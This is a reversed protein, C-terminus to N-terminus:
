GPAVATDSQRFAYGDVAANTHMPVPHRAVAAQALIRGAAAALAVTTVATAPVIRESLIAIAEAHLLRPRDAAFCDDSLKPRSM